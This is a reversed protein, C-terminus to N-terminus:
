KLTSHVAIVNAAAYLPTHSISLLWRTIGQETALRQCNGYLKVFPARTPLRQVEIDLWSSGPQGALGLVKLIAVKAAFRGAFYQTSDASSQAAGREVDTFHYGEFRQSLDKLWKQIYQTEVIELAYGIVNLSDSPFSLITKPTIDELDSYEVQVEPM